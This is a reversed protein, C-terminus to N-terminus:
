KVKRVNMAQNGRETKVIDFEVTQGEALTKYGEMNIASFHVFVDEGNDASIFGYGKEPNFWKVRGRM